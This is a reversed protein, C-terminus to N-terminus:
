VTVFRRFKTPRLTVIQPPCVIWVSQPPIGCYYITVASLRNPPRKTQTLIDRPRNMPPRFMLAGAIFTDPHIPQM